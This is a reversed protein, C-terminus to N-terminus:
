RRRQPRVLGPSPRCINGSGDRQERVAQIELHVLNQECGLGALLARAHDRHFIRGVVRLLEDLIQREFVVLQALRVDGLFEQFDGGRLHRHTSRVIFM